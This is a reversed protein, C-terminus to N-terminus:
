THSFLDMNKFPKSLLLACHRRWARSRGGSSMCSFNMLENCDRDESELALEGVLM